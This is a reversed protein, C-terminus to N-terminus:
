GRAIYNATGQFHAIGLRHAKCTGMWSFSNERIVKVHGIGTIWCLGKEGQLTLALAVEGTSINVDWGLGM